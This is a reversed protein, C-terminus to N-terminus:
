GNREVQRNLISELGEEAKELQEGFADFLFVDHGYTAAIQAIGSGM